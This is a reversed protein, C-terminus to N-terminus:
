VWSFSVGIVFIVTMYCSDGQIQGVQLLKMAPEPAGGSMGRNM